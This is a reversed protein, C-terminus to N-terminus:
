RLSINFSRGGTSFIAGDFFPVEKEQPVPSGGLTMECASETRRIFFSQDHYSISAIGAPDLGGWVLRGESVCLSISTFIWAADRLVPDSDSPILYISSMSGNQFVPVIELRYFGGLLLQGRRTFARPKMADLPQGDLSSGNGSAKTGDGDRFTIGSPGRQAFAHVRSLENSRRVDAHLSFDALLESRGIRFEPRASLRLSPHTGDAPQLDLVTGTANAAAPAKSLPATREASIAGAFGGARLWMGWFAHCDTGARGDLAAGLLDSAESRISAIPSFVAGGSLDRRASGLLELLLRALAAVRSPSARALSPSYTRDTSPGSVTEPNLELEFPPWNRPDSAM